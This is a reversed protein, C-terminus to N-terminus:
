RGRDLELEVARAAGVGAHVREGLDRVEVDGRRQRRCVSSVRRLSSSGASMLTSCTSVTECRKWARCSAVRACSRRGSRAAACPTRWATRRTPAPAARRRRSARPPPAAEDAEVVEGDNVSSSGSSFDVVTATSRPRPRDLVAVSMRTRTTPECKRHFITRRMTPTSTARRGRRARRPPSTGRRSRSGDPTGARSVAGADPSNRSDTAYPASGGTSACAAGDASSRM